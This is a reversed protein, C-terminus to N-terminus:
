SFDYVAEIQANTIGELNTRPVHTRVALKVADLRDAERKFVSSSLFDLQYADCAKNWFSLEEKPLATFNFKPTTPTKTRGTKRRKM